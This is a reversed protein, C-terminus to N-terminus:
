SGTGDSVNVLVNQSSSDQQFHEATSAVDKMQLKVFIKLFNSLCM